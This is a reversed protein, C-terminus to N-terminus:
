AAIQNVSGVFQYGNREALETLLIHLEDHDVYTKSVDVVGDVPIVNTDTDNLGGGFYWNYDEIFGIFTDWFDKDGKGDKAVFAGRIEYERDM